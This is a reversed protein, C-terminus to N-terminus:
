AAGKGDLKLERMGAVALPLHTAAVIMGGAGLHEAMIDTILGQSAADLSATPEDLLWVPRWAVLLRALALRRRQGASLYGAPIHSLDTLALKALANEAAAAPARGGLFQAWFRLNEHVTMSSRVGNGHGVLHCHEGLAAAGDGGELRITGGAPHIFGALTRILTTKGAGNRGTLTVGSGRDVTLSLAQIVERGGRWVSLNEAVLRM